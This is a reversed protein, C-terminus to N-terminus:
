FPFFPLFASIPHFQNMKESRVMDWPYRSSRCFFSGVCFDFRSQTECLLPSPLNSSLRHWSIAAWLLSRSPSVLKVPKTIIAILLRLGFCSFWFSRAVASLCPFWWNEFTFAELEQQSDTFAPAIFGYLFCELSGEDQGQVEWDHSRDYSIWPWGACTGQNKFEFQAFVSDIM